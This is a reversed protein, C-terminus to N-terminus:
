PADALPHAADELLRETGIVGLLLGLLDRRWRLARVGPPMEHVAVPVPELLADPALEAGVRARRIRDPDLPFVVIGVLRHTWALPVRLVVLDVVQAADHATEADLGTGCPGEREGAVVLHGE